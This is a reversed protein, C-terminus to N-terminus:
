CRGQKQPRWQDLIGPNRYARWALVFEGNAVGDVGFMLDIRKHLLCFLCSRADGMGCM